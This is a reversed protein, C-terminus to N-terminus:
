QCRCGQNIILAALRPPQEKHPRFAKCVNRWIELHGCPLVLYNVKWSAPTRLVGRWHSEVNCVFDVTASPLRLSKPTEIAVVRCVGGLRLVPSTHKGPRRRTHFGLDGTVGSSGPTDGGISDGGSLGPWTPSRCLWLVNTGSRRRM